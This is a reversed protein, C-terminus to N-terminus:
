IDLSDESTVLKSKPWGQVRVEKNQLDEKKIIKSAQHSRAGILHHRGGEFSPFQFSKMGSNSVKTSKNGGSLQSSQDLKSLFPM